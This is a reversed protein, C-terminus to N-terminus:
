LAGPENNWGFVMMTKRKSEFKKTLRQEVFRRIEAPVYVAEGFRYSDVILWGRAHGDVIRQLEAQDEIVEAGSYYDILRGDKDFINHQRALDANPWNLNYDARGLYYQATQPLTSIVADSSQWQQRVFDAAQRWEAHYIAGNYQGDTQRPASLALRFWFTLPMWALFFLM